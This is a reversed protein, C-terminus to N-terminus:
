KPSLWFPPNWPFRQVGGLDAVSNHRSCPDVDPTWCASDTTTCLGETDTFEQNSISCLDLVLEKCRRGDRALLIEGEDPESAINQEGLYSSM